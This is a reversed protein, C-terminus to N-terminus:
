PNYTFGEELSSSIALAHAQMPDGSLSSLSQAPDGLDVSHLAASRVAEGNLVEVTMGPGESEVVLTGLEVVGGTPWTGPVLPESSNVFTLSFSRQGTPFSGAAPVSAMGQAAVAPNPMFSVFQGTQTGGIAFNVNFACVHDSDRGEPGVVCPTGDGEGADPEDGPGDVTIFLRLSSTGFAPLIQYFDDFPPDATPDSGVADTRYIWPRDPRFPNEAAAEAAPLSMAVAGALVLVAAAHKWALKVPSTHHMTM